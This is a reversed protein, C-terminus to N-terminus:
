RFLWWWRWIGVGALPTIRCRDSAPSEDAPPRGQVAYWRRGEGVARHQGFKSPTPATPKPIAAAVLLDHGQFTRTTM